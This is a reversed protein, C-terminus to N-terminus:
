RQAAKNISQLIDNLGQQHTQSVRVGAELMSAFSNLGAQVATSQPSGAANGAAGGGFLGGLVSGVLGGFAGQDAGAGGFPSGFGGPATAAGALQGLIGGMGQSSMAHALGGMLMSAVAPMMRAIVQPDVGSMRSAQQSIQEAVQPSGFIQGLIAGGLNGAAGTQTPDAYSAAHAGSTLQSLLGGLGTPDQATRQLGASFAPMMAQIAAQTQEPTLGFQSALNNVGQGGQAAQLIDNLNM